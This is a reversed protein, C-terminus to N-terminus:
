PVTFEAKGTQKPEVKLFERYLTLYDAIAGHPRRLTYRLTGIMIAPDATFGKLFFYARSLHMSFHQWPAVHCDKSMATPLSMARILSNSVTVMM